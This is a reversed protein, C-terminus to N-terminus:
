AFSHLSFRSVNLWISGFHGSPTMCLWQMAVSPSCILVFQMCYFMHHMVHARQLALGTCVVGVHQLGDASVRVCLLWVLNYISLEMAFFAPAPQRGADHELFLALMLLTLM